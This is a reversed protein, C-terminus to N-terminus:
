PTYSRFPVLQNSSIKNTFTLKKLPNTPSCATGNGTFVPTFRIKGGLNKNVFKGATVKGSITALTPDAATTKGTFRVTSTTGNAWTMKGNGTLTQAGLLSACSVNKLPITVQLKGNGGTAGSPTCNKAQGNAKVTQNAPTNTLGPTITATGTLNNCKQAVTVAHADQAVLATGATSACACALVASFMRNRLM